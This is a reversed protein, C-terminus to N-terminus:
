RRIQLASHFILVLVFATYPIIIPPFFCMDGKDTCLPLCLSSFLCVLLRLSAARRESAYIKSYM